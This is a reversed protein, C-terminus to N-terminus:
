EAKLEFEIDTIGYAWKSSEAEPVLIRLPQEKEGLAKSGSAVSLIIEYDTLYEDKLVVKYEDKCYFRVRDIQELSYGYHELFTTLLPGYARVTGAKATAGTDQRSVCKMAMLEAPTVTFDEEQLGHITIAENEYAAIDAQGCACFTFLLMLAMLVALPAARRRGSPRFAFGKVLKRESLLFARILGSRGVGTLSTERDRLVVQPRGAIAEHERGGPFLRNKGSRESMAMVRKQPKRM